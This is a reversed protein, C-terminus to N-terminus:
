MSPSMGVRVMMTVLPYHEKLFLTKTIRVHHSLVRVKEVFRKCMLSFPQMIFSDLDCSDLDSSVVRQVLPLQEESQVMAAANQVM